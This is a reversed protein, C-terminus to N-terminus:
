RKLINRAATKTARRPTEEAKRKGDDPPPPHPQAGGGGGQTLLEGFELQYIGNVPIHEGVVGVVEGRERHVEGM